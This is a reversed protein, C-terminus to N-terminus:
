SEVVPITFHFTTGKGYETEFWIKGGQMEVLTKTINLGLGTGASDRIKQDESRFFKQFIKRQDEEHIGFGNDKVRIHLVQAASEPDWKNEVAEAHLAIASNAPSYKHANVLLNTLIQILRTRDGWGHPLSDPLNISLNQEKEEVQRRVSRVVEGVVEQLDVATFDLHLRGTEIRSVDALDSVLTAMRDVNSRITSLFNAQADNVPGVVGASLLDTFGKISTMPTKLEHSVFSVFESKALNAAQVESYLQANAIAIAAHDSLRSLFALTEEAPLQDTSSELVLVGIAQTERRIPVVIQTQSTPLLGELGTESNIRGAQPLGSEIASQMIGTDTRLNDNSLIEAPCGASAMASFGNPELWGIVGAQAQSQRMAWELTIEMAKQVDLSANLERDIRQMVSLEQVRAALAQDTLTYLRANEISIAAQSNFATLLQQDEVNFPLKDIRNVVEIVGIVQDKVQLPVVLIDRLKHASEESFPEPGDSIQQTGNAIIPQRSQVAQGVLGTDLPLREGILETAVPGRAAAFVLEDRQPDVLLLNGSDCSMIEIASDLIQELLRDLDLTSTLRHTVENLKTLQKTRRESDELLRGKVIAGATQDAIAQLIDLQQSTYTVSPDRNGLSIVGITDPGSNLPVGMWAFIAEMAPRVAYRKCEKEYDDSLLSRQSQMIIQELGQGVSLPLGEKDSLREDNELYFVHCLHNSHTDQLTIRFDLSPIVQTTQAYVLELMDDFALTVNVGQSVRTLVNMEHMRRELNKTAQIRDVVLAAQESLSEILTIDNQHYDQGSRRPGVSVWGALHDRGALPLIVRTNLMMLRANEARDLTPFENGETIMIPSRKEALTLALSSEVPFRLDTTAQGNTDPYAIFHNSIPDLIFVYVSAPQLNEVLYNQLITVIESISAAKDLQRTFAQLLKQSVTPQRSFALDIKIQLRERIPNVLLALMVILGGTFIPNEVKFTGMLVLSAGAVILAYSIAALGTLLVYLLTRRIILETKQPM